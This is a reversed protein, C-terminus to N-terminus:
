AQSDIHMTNYDIVLFILRLEEWFAKLFFDFGFLIFTRFLDFSINCIKKQIMSTQKNKFLPMFIHVIIECYINQKFSKVHIKLSLVAKTTRQDPKSTLTLNLQNPRKTAHWFNPTSLRSSSIVPQRGLGLRFFQSKNSSLM